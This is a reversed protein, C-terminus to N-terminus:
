RDRIRASVREDAGAVPEHVEIAHVDPVVQGDIALV